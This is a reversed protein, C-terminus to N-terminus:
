KRKGFFANRIWSRNLIIHIFALLFFTFGMPGHIQWVIDSAIDLNALLVTSFQTIFALALLVNVIKLLKAQM